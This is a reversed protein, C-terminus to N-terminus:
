RPGCSAGKLVYALHGLLNKLEQPTSYSTDAFLGFAAVYIFYEEGLKGLDVLFM